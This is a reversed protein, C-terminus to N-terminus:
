RRILLSPDAPTTFLEVELKLVFLGGLESPSDIVVQINNPIGSEYNVRPTVGM